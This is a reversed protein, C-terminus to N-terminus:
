FNPYPRLSSLPIADFLEGNWADMSGGAAPSKAVRGEIWKWVAAEMNTSAPREGADALQSLISPNKRGAMKKRPSFRKIGDIEHRLDNATVGSIRGGGVVFEAGRNPLGIILAVKRSIWKTLLMHVLPVNQRFAPMLLFHDLHLQRLANVFDEGYTARLRDCVQRFTSARCRFHIKPSYGHITSWLYVDVANKKRYM